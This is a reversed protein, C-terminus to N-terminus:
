DPCPMDSSHTKLHYFILKVKPTSTSQLHKPSTVDLSNVKTPTAYRLSPHSHCLLIINPQHIKNCTCGTQVHYMM